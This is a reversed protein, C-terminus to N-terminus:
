MLLWGRGGRSPRRRPSARRPSYSSLTDVSALSTQVGHMMGRQAERLARQHLGRASLVLSPFYREAGVDRSAPGLDTQHRITQHDSPSIGKVSGM